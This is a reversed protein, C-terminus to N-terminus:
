AARSGTRYALDDRTATMAQLFLDIMADLHHPVFPAAPLHLSQWVHRDHLKWQVWVNDRNLIGIEVASQRRSHVNHAVRAMISVAPQDTRLHVWVPQGMHEIVYDGDNDIVPEADYKRRLVEGVLRHLHDRDSPAVALPPNAVMEIQIDQTATPGLHVATAENPGFAAYTLLQPHHINFGDRLTKLVIEVPEEVEWMHSELFWNRARPEGDCRWGMTALAVEHVHDLQFEPRLYYNSSIELRVMLGGFPAFQVYPTTGVTGDHVPDPLEIRLHDADDANCLYATLAQALTTWAASTEDIGGAAAEDPETNHTM